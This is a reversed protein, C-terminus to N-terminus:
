SSILVPCYELAKNKFSRVAPMITPTIAIGKAIAKPMALPTLGCCPRIVAIIPPSAIEKNPPEWTCIPPGVPANITMTAPTTAWNPSVPNIIAVAMAPTKSTNIPSSLNPSTILNM